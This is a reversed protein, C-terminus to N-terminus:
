GKRLIINNSYTGMDIKDLTDNEIYEKERIQAQTKQSINKWDIYKDGEYYQSCNDWGDADMHFCTSILEDVSGLLQSLTTTYRVM